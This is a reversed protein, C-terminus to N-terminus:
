KESKESKQHGEQGWYVTVISTVKPPSLISSSQKYLLPWLNDRKPGSKMGCARLLQLRPHGKENAEKRSSLAWSHQQTLRFVNHLLSPLWQTMGLSCLKAKILVM